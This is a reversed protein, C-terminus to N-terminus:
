RRRIAIIGLNETWRNKLITTKPANGARKQVFLLSEAQFAINTLGARLNQEWCHSVGRRISADIDEIFVNYTGKNYVDAVKSSEAVLDNAYQLPTMNAPQM